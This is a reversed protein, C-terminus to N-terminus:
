QQHRATQPLFEVAIVMTSSSHESSVPRPATSRASVNLLGDHDLQVGFLGHSYRESRLEEVLLLLGHSYRESRLEEVLLL